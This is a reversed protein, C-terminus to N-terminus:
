EVSSVHFLTLFWVIIEDTLYVLSSTFTTAFVTDPLQENINVGTSLFDASPIDNWFELKGGPVTENGPQFIFRDALPVYNSAMVGPSYRVNDPNGGLEQFVNKIGQLPSVTYTPRLSASGGGSIMAQQANSGIVAIVTDKEFTLPLLPQENVPENKLLVVSSASALRLLPRTEDVNPPEEQKDFPIGSEEAIQVLKLM